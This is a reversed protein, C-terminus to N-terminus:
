EPQFESYCFPYAERMEQAQANAYEINVLPGQGIGPCWCGTRNWEVRDSILEPWYPFTRCQLPKVQHISCGGDKLFYCNARRPIRLRARYKTRYVHKKEFAEPTMHLYEAIRAIDSDVVYVWGEKDCCKTCGPQCQFRLDM